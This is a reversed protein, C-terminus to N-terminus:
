PRQFVPSRLIRNSPSDGVRGQINFNTSPSRDNRFALHKRIGALATINLTALAIEMRAVSALGTDTNYSVIAMFVYNGQTTVYLRIRSTPDGNVSTDKYGATSFTYKGLKKDSSDTRAFDNIFISTYIAAIQKATLSGTIKQGQGYADAENSGTDAVIFGSDNVPVGPFSFVSWGDQFTISFDKKTILLPACLTERPLLSAMAIFFCFTTSLLPLRKIRMNM